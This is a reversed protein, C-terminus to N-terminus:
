GPRRHQLMDRVSNILGEAIREPNIQFKGESIAQRIEAVKQTDFAAEAGGVSHLAASVVASTQESSPAGMRVPSSAARNGAVRPGSPTAVPGLPKSSNEIKM